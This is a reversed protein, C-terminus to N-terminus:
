TAWPPPTGIEDKDRWLPEVTLIVRPPKGPQTLGPEAKICRFTGRQGAASLLTGEEFSDALKRVDITRLQLGIEEVAKRLEPSLAALLEDTQNLMDDYLARASAETIKIDNV